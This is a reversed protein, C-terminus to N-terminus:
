APNFRLLADLPIEPVELGFHEYLLHLLSKLLNGRYALDVAVMPYVNVGIVKGIASPDLANPLDQKNAFVMIPLKPYDQQIKAM